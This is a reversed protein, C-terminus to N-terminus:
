GQKDVGVVYRVLMATTEDVVRDRPADWGLSDAGKQILLANLTGSMALLAFRIRDHIDDPADAGAKSVLREAMANLMRRRHDRVHDKLSLDAGDQLFSQLAIMITAGRENADVLMEVMSRIAAGLDATACARNTWIAGEAQAQADLMARFAATLLANKDTFRRYVAGVSVGASRAVDPIQCAVLGGQSLLSLAAGILRQETERSRAQLPRGPSMDTVTM